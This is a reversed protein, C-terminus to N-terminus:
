GNSKLHNHAYRYKIKNDDDDDFRFYSGNANNLTLDHFLPIDCSFLQSMLLFFPSWDPRVCVNWRPTLLLLHATALRTIETCCSTVLSFLISCPPMHSFPVRIALNMPGVHPVDPASLVWTPGMNAGFVKSDPSITSIYAAPWLKSHHTIGHGLLGTAYYKSVSYVLNNKNCVCSKNSGASHELLHPRWILNDEIKASM